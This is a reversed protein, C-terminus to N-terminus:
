SLHNEQQDCVDFNAGISRVESKSQLGEDCFVIGVVLSILVGFLAVVAVSYL